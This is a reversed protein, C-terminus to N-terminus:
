RRSQSSSSHERKKAREQEQKKLEKVLQCMECDVEDWDTVLEDKRPTKGDCYKTKGDTTYHRIPSAQEHFTPMELKDPDRDLSM